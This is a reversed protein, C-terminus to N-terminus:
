LFEELKYNELLFNDSRGNTFMEDVLKIRDEKTCYIEIESEIEM